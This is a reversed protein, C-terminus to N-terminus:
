SNEDGDIELYERFVRHFKALKGKQCIACVNPSSSAIFHHPPTADDDNEIRKIREELAEVRAELGRNKEALKLTDDAFTKKIQFNAENTHKLSKNEQQLEDREALLQRVYEVAQTLAGDKVPQASTLIADRQEWFAVFGLPTM